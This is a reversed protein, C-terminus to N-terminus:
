CRFFKFNVRYNSESRGGPRRFALMCIHPGMVLRDSKILVGGPPVGKPEVEIEELLEEMPQEFTEVLNNM